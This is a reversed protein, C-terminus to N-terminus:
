YSMNLNRKVLEGFVLSDQVFKGISEFSQSESEEDDRRNAVLRCVDDGHSRCREEQRVTSGLLFCIASEM